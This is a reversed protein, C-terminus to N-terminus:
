CENCGIFDNISISEEAVLQGQRNIAECKENVMRPKIFQYCNQVNFKSFDLPLNLTKAIEPDMFQYQFFIKDGEKYLLWLEVSMRKNKQNNIVLCSTSHSKIREIGEKWQQKYEDLTWTDLSLYFEEKFDGITTQLICTEPVIKPSGSVEIKFKGVNYSFLTILPTDLLQENQDDNYPYINISYNNKHKYYLERNADNLFVELQKKNIKYRYFLAYLDFLEENEIKPRSIFLLIKDGKGKVNTICTIKKSWEFFADEDHPSFFKVRKCELIINKNNM